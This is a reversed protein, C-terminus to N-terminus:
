TQRSPDTQGAPSGIKEILAVSKELSKLLEEGQLIVGKAIIYTYKQALDENYLNKTKKSIIWTVRKSAANELWFTFVENNKLRRYM